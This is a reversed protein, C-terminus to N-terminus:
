GAMGAAIARARAALRKENVKVLRGERVVIRGNVITYKTKQSMIALM